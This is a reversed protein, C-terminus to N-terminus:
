GTNVCARLTSTRQPVEILIEIVERLLQWARPLIMLAVLVSVIPDIRLFGTASIAIAGVIVAISGLLDGWM